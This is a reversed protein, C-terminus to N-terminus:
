VSEKISTKELYKKLSEGIIYTWGAVFSEKAFDKNDGPFTELGEHTLKLRTKDGEPFLEFTVFSKGEYGEYQWSHSLKKGAVVETITCKHLYRRNESGGEFEFEFGVEPKFESIDFYWQKMQDRDTIAKWVNEISANFTREIVFPENKM